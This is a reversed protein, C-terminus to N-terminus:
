TNTRIQTCHIQIIKISQCLYETGKCCRRLQHCGGSGVAQWGEHALPPAGRGAGALSTGEMGGEDWWRGM